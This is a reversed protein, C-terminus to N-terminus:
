KDKKSVKKSTKKRGKKKTHKDIMAILDRVTKIKIIDEEKMRVGFEEKVALFLDATDLSDADLDKEFDSDLKIKEVEVGLHEAIMKFVEDQEM